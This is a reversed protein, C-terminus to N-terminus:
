ISLMVTMAIFEGLGSGVAQFSTAKGRSPSKIYDIILPHSHLYQYAVSALARNVILWQISPMYPLTWVLLVLLAYSIAILRRRGFLDFTYGVFVSVIVSVLAGYFLVRGEVTGVIAPDVNFYFPDTLLSVQQTNYYAGAATTTCFILPIALVNQLTTEKKVQMGFILKSKKTSKEKFNKLEKSEM